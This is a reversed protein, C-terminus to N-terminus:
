DFDPMIFQFPVVLENNRNIYGYYSQDAMNQYVAAHDGSFDEVYDYQAAIVYQGSRDIFGWYGEQKVRALGERFPGCQEFSGWPMKQGKHDIYGQRGDKQFIAFGNQFSSITDIKYLGEVQMNGIDIVAYLGPGDDGQHRADWARYSVRVVCHSRTTDVIHLKAGKVEAPHTRNMMAEVEKVNVVVSGRVPDVFAACRASKDFVRILGADNWSADAFADEPLDFVPRGDSRDVVYCESGDRLLILGGNPSVSMQASEGGLLVKGKSDILELSRVSTEHFVVATGRYFPTCSSYIPPIAFKGSADVYGQRDLQAVFRVNDPGPKSKAAIALGESFGSLVVNQTDSRTLWRGENLDYMQTYIYRDRSNLTLINNHFLETTGACGGLSVATMVIFARFKRLM